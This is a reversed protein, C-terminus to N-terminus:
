IKYGRIDLALYPQRCGANLTFSSRAIFHKRHVTPRNPLEPQTSWLPIIRLNQTYAPAAGSSLLLLKQDSVLGREPTWWVYIELDLLNLGPTSQRSAPQQNLPVLFLTPYSPSLTHSDRASCVLINELTFGKYYIWKSCSFSTRGKPHEKGNEREGWGSLCGKEKEKEETIM